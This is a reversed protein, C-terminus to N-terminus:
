AGSTMALTVTPLKPDRVLVDVRLPAGEHDPVPLPAAFTLRLGGRERARGRLRGGDVLDAAPDTAASGRRVVDVDGRPDRAAALLLPTVLLLVVVGPRSM